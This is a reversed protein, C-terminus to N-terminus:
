TLLNKLNDESTNPEADPGEGFKVMVVGGERPGREGGERPGGEGGERPFRERGERPGREMGKRPFFQPLVDRL